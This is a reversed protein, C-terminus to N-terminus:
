IHLFFGCALFHVFTETSAAFGLFYEKMSCGPSNGWQCKSKLGIFYIELKYCGFSVSYIYTQKLGSLKHYNTVAAGSALVCLFTFSASKISECSCIRVPRLTM